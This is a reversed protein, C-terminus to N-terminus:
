AHARQAAGKGSIRLVLVVVGGAFGLIILPLAPLLTRTIGSGVSGGIAIDANGPATGTTTVAFSGPSTVPMSLVARGEHSGINYTVTSGYHALSAVAAGPSAPAVHVDFSPINGNQSGRGEYYITYGGSHTLTVTGSGPLPVRQLGDITGFLSILGYALFALGAGLAALAVVYWIRGPRVQQSSVPAYGPPPQSVGPIVNM